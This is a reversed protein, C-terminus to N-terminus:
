EARMETIKGRIRKSLRAEPFPKRNLCGIWFPIKLVDGQEILTLFKLADARFFNAGSSVPRRMAAAGLRRLAAATLPTLQVVVAAAAAAVVVVVVVVVM